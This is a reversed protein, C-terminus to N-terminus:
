TPSRRGRQVQEEMTLTTSPFGLHYLSDRLVEGGPARPVQEEFCCVCITDPQIEQLMKSRPTNLLVVNSHKPLEDERVRLCRRNVERPSWPRLGTQNHRTMRHSLLPVIRSQAFMGPVACVHHKFTKGKVSHPPCRQCELFTICESQTPGTGLLLSM